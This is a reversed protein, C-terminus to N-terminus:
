CLSITGCRTADRCPLDRQKKQIATYKKDLVAAEASGKALIAEAEAKAARANAENIELNAQAIELQKQRDIQAIEQLKKEEVIQRAAVQRAIEVEKVQGIVALEKERQADQVEKTRQIEKKLQETKAQAKATEQEQVAKIREAVLRKKESLLQELQEEPKPDGITVQTVEIGYQALPNESRRPFGKDDLLPVTKWVLQVSKQVTGADPKDLGVPALDSQEVEVQRRETEYVGNRLQDSLQSKFVNLGGQFFEEGTYQTATIITVNQANKDLLSDELNDQNRFEKHMKIVMLPDQPLKFRFTSPVTGTYTDAFRVSTAQRKDMAGPGFAETIVQKYQTVTSFFPMRYHIGPETYVDIKGTLKNQHVYLLGAETMLYSNHACYLGGALFIVSGLAKLVTRPDDPISVGSYRRRCVLNPVRPLARSRVMM